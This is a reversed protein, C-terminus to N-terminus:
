LIPIVQIIAKRFSVLLVNKCTVHQYATQYKFCFAVCFNM